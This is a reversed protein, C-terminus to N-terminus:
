NFIGQLLSKAADEVPNGNNQQQNQPNTLDLPQDSNQGNGSGPLIKNVLNEVAAGPGEKLVDVPAQVVAGAGGLAKELADGAPGPVLGGIGQLQKFAAEPNTLIGAIDPYINPNNWPGSIIIPVALGAIDAGGQGALSAVISPNVRYNLTQPPISVTGEGTVRVLPGYLRLDSNTAEGNVINFSGSFEAFDTKQAEGPTLWGTLINTSLSRIMAPINVGYIAGDRFDFRANGNLTQTLALQSSGNATIDFNLAGTGDVASVKATDTLFPRIDLGAFSFDSTLSIGNGTDAVTFAGTGTGGYFGFETLTAALAGDRIAATLRVPGAKIDRAVLRNASADLQLNVSRLGDARIPETSWGSQVPSGGGSGGSGGSSAAGGNEDGGMFPSVDLTDFAMSATIAPVAGMAVSASGSGSTSGFRVAFDPLSIADASGTIEGSIDFAGDAPAASQGLYALLRNASSGSASFTGAVSGQLSVKGDFETSVPNGRLSLSVDSTSGALLASPDATAATQFGEGIFAFSAEAKVPGSLGDFTVTASVDSVEDAAPNGLASALGLGTVRGGSLSVSGSPAANAIWDELTKGSTFAAIDGSLTGSAPLDQGTLAAVAGLDFSKLLARSSSAPVGEQIGVQSVAEITGGAVSLPDLRLELVGDSNVATARLGTASIGEGSVEDIVLELSASFASLPSLDIPTASSSSASSGAEGANGGSQAGDAPAESFFDDLALRALAFAAQVSPKEASLDAFAAGTLQEGLFVGNLQAIQAADDFVTVDGSFDIPKGLGPVPSGTIKSLARNPDQSTVRVTGTFPAGEQLATGEVAVQSGEASITVVLSAPRNAAIENPNDLEASFSVPLAEYRATGAVSVPRNLRPATVTIDLDSLLNHVSGADDETVVRGDTITIRNVGFRSLDVPEGTPTVTQAAAEARAGEEGAKLKIVPGAMRVTEIEVVGSLLPMFAVRVSLEDLSVDADSGGGLTLNRTTLGLGSLVTFSAGGDISLDRGTALKVQRTLEAQVYSTPVVFPVAILVGAIVAIIILFWILFRRM